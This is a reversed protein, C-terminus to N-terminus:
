KNFPVIGTKRFGNIATAPVATQSFANGVLSSIENLTVVKGPNQKLYKEISLSVNTKFPGMFAVDLPQLKHSCHPPFCLITVNNNRAKEILTLNKVHSAHGDLLLLVPAQPSPRTQALFHNFWINFDAITMWGSGNCSFVSEAPAGKKLQDTLRSRPFILMPPLFHGAASVCMCATSLVGRDASTICGVQRRGKLALVKSKKTQVTLVSTEDVNYIRSPPFKGSELQKELLEFFSNVSVRNFGQARAASTAEPTRLSLEPHRKRFSQLWDTGALMTSKNFPHKKNNKEALQYALSRADKATIGYCTSEAAILHQMLENEEAPTFVPGFAGLAQIEEERQLYRILTARPIGYARAAGKKSTGEYKVAKVAAELATNTWKRRKQTSKYNRVM